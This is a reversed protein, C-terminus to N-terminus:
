VTYAGRNTDNLALSKSVPVLLDKAERKLITAPTPRDDQILTGGRQSQDGAKSTYMIGASWLVNAMDLIDGAEDYPLYDVKFLGLHTAMALQGRYRYQEMQNPTAKTIATLDFGHINNDIVANQLTDKIDEYIGGYLDTNPEKYVKKM